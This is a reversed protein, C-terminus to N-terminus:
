RVEGEAAGAAGQQTQHREIASLAVGAVVDQRQLRGLRAGDFCSARHPQPDQVLFVL